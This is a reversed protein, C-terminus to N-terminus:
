DTFIKTADVGLWESMWILGYAYLTLLNIAPIFGLLAAMKDGYIRSSFLSALSIVGFYFAVSSIYKGLEHTNLILMISMFGLIVFGPLMVALMMKLRNM